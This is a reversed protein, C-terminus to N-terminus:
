EFSISSMPEDDITDSKSLNLTNLSVSLPMDVLLEDLEALELLIKIFLWVALKDLLSRRKEKMEIKLFEKNTM